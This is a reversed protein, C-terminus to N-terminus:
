ITLAAKLREKIQAALSSDLPRRCLRRARVFFLVLETSGRARGCAQAALGYLALQPWYREAAEEM